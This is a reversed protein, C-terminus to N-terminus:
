TKANFEHDQETQNAYEVRTKKIKKFIVSKKIKRKGTKRKVM